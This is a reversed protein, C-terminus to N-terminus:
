EHGAHEEAENEHAADRAHADDQMRDGADRVPPRVRGLVIPAPDACASAALLLSLLLSTVSRLSTM